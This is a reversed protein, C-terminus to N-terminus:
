SKRYAARHHNSTVLQTLCPCPRQIATIKENHTVCASCFLSVAPQEAAFANGPFGGSHKIKLPFDSIKGCVMLLGM